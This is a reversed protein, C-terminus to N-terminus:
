TMTLFHDLLTRLEIAQLQRVVQAPDSKPIRVATACADVFVYPDWQDKPALKTVLSSDPGYQLFDVAQHKLKEYCPHTGVRNFWYRANSYDPERRHIIGHLYSGHRNDIAQALEHAPDLHDHWIYLVCRILDQTAPSYSTLHPELIEDLRKRELTGPRSKSDLTPPEPTQLLELIAVIHSEM